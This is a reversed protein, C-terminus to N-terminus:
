HHCLVACFVSTVVVAVVDILMMVCYLVSM